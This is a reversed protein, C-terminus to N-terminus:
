CLNACRKSRDHLEIEVSYIAFTIPAFYDLVSAENSQFSFILTSMYKIEFTKMYKIKYDENMPKLVFEALALAYL